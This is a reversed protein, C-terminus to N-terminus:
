QRMGPFDGHELLEINRVLKPQPKEDPEVQDRNDSDPAKPVIELSQQERRLFEPISLDDSSLAAPATVTSGNTHDRNGVREELLPWWAGPIAALLAELGIADIAKTRDVPTAAMWAAIVDLHTARVNVKLVAAAKATSGREKTTHPKPPSLKKIAREITLDALDSKCTPNAAVLQALRVYREAQREGIECRKLFKGWQGHLTLEKAAILAQGADIAHMVANSAADIYGAQAKRIREALEDISPAVQGDVHSGINGPM